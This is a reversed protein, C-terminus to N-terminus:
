VTQASPHPYDNRPSGELQGRCSRGLLAFRECDSITHTHTTPTLVPRHPTSRPNTETFNTNTQPRDPTTRSNTHPKSPTPKPDFAPEPHMRYRRPKAAGGGEAGKPRLCSSRGVSRGGAGRGLAVGGAIGACRRGRAGHRVGRRLGVAHRRQQGDSGRSHLGAGPARFGLTAGGPLGRLLGPAATCLLSLRRRTSSAPTAM